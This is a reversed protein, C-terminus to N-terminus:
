NFMLKKQSVTVRRDAVHYYHEDHSIIVVTKGEKKLYPIIENYFKAKFYPDQNAAWEDFVYIDKDELLSRFLNLRSMQGMSLNTTSLQIGDNLTVKDRIELLDLYFEKLMDVKNHKIYRLDQFVYSDAFVASFLNRYTSLNSYDIKTNMYQIYGHSPNYLGTLVKILTTKGSGNGGNILFYKM